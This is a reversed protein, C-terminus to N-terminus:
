PQFEAKEITISESLRRETVEKWYEFGEKLSVQAKRTVAAFSKRLQEINEPDTWNELRDDVIEKAIELALLYAGIETACVKTVSYYDDDEFLHRVVWVEGLTAGTRQLLAHLALVDKLDPSSSQAIRRQFQRILNDSM